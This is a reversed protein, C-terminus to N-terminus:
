KLKLESIFRKIEQQFYKQIKPNSNIETAMEILENGGKHSNKLSEYVAIPYAQPASPQCVVDITVIEFDSVKGTSENVNGSGRSSVGLKVNSELISKIINGMPTPLIRLKGLGNAGEMWMSTIVHSVRELNISLTDPHSLEGFVPTNSEILRNISNVANRIEYEPYVRDNHNRVEGQICIGKMYLNKQKVGMADVAESIETTMADPNQYEFLSQKDM